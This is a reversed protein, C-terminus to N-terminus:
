RWALWSKIRSKNKKEKKLRIREEQITLLKEEYELWEKEIYPLIYVITLGGYFVLCNPFQMLVQNGYGGLQQSVFACCFGAGIGRLSPNKLKFLVIRCAGILMFGTCILFITIGIIGTHIWIYVYESDPPVKAMYTYKNNVPANLYGIGMGIGWPAEQMYKKMAQQNLTRQNASADNRDFASRMRRIQQNGNGINTFALIFVFIGFFISFPIAIKISKSLFIYAMFGAMLCAIATRTGSPFMAWTCAAGIILFFYKHKKIKSTIGFIIFAVATSAIGIGFNAADSYISFYRILTGGALIHTSRGRTEMWLHEADTFGFTKQKWAWIVAILALIGWIYLYKILIQPTTIYLSFVLFAYILQYGMMRAAAYWAGIDIGIGCTDNLVELTCFSCWIILTFFMLNIVREYHAEKVDIILISLLIIELLENYLSAPINLSPFDKWQVIYNVLILAWFALMRYKFAVIILLIILPISCIIAFANFGSFIFQYIALIFLLFLLSVRGGTLNFNFNRFDNNM